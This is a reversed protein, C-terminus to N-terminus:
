KKMVAIRPKGSYDNLISVAYGRCSGSERVFNGMDDGMEMILVGEEDLLDGSEDIIRGATERGEEGAYLAVPPEFSLDRQLTPAAAPDVYPPNAAIVQFRMGGLGEFLDGRHFRVSGKGTIRAANKRAVALARPSIDTAHVELDRRAHKVAVAVAGSGTGIDVVRANMKAYYIAMDVLLETEPRPILVHRNVIFDLSYFERRGLIYAVPEFRERRVTLRKIRRMEDDALPRDRGALLAQRDVGLAHAVLLEADLLPGPIGAEKLRGSVVGVIESVLM